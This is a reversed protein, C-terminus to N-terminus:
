YGAVADAAVVRTRGHGNRARKVAKAAKTVELQTGMCLYQWAECNSVLLGDVYYCHAEEAEINFM